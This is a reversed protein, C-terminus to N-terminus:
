AEQEVGLRRLWGCLQMMVMEPDGAIHVLSGFRFNTVNIRLHQVFKLNM